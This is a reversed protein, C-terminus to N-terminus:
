SKKYILYYNVLNYHFHDKLMVIIENKLEKRAEQLVRM